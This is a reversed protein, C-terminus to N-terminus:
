GVEKAVRAALTFDREAYVQTVNAQSHGLVVQAAELGYKRRIETAASHRLQNPSWCHDSQWKKLEARQIDTLRERWQKITEDPRRALEGDAPFAKDCARHIARRYADVDYLDGPEHKPKRRRNSGPKNGYSLPTRRAAHVAARRKAESDCPRFCYMEADRVLYRLLISQTQPGLFVIRERGYRETKHSEPRYEWVEGSRDIDRPRMICLEAPRCGALRQLRVMDAVVSSAHPITADVTADDVPLVPDAERADSRGRRLGDVATLAKYVDAPVLEEGVAWRFIRVIRGVHDNIYSRSLGDEIMRQRVAKLALPGFDQAATRGHMVRLYRIARKVGPLSRNKKDNARYYRKAFELYRGCLEILTPPTNAAEVLIRDNQEWREMLRAYALRSDKTGYRGLYYDRSNLTVVAQGTARHKRYKPRAHVLRPM